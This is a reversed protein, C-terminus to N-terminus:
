QSAKGTRFPVRAVAQAQWHNDFNLKLAREALRIAESDDTAFVRWSHVDGNLNQLTVDYLHEEPTILPVGLIASYLTDKIWRGMNHEQNLRERIAQDRLGGDLRFNFQERQPNRKM